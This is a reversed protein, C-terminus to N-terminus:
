KRVHCEGCTLPGSKYRKERLQQHCGKCQGHFAEKLPMLSKGSGPSHCTACAQVASEGGVNNGHKDFDHHCYLCDPKVIGMHKEHSFQVLPREHAGIEKKHDMVMVPDQSFAFSAFVLGMLVTVLAHAAYKM